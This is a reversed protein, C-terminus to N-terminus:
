KSVEPRNPCAIVHAHGLHVIPYPAPPEKGFTFIYQAEWWHALFLKVTWRMARSHIHGPSLKGQSYHKYAETTKAVRAAGAEAQAKYALKENLGQEYEKRGLYLKGYFDNPNGSVKVFCDSILWALKKLQANWPRRKGKEWKQTPNLGAFSWIHGATPAKHIDIHAMLGASIVPGVGTIEQAWRGIPKSQSYFHLCKKVEEEMMRGQEFLWLFLGHPEGSKALERARAASRIRDGQMKYYTDVLFRAETDSLKASAKRIDASLKKLPNLEAEM